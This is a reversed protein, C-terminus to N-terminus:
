LLAEARGPTAYLVGGGYFAVIKEEEQMTVSDPNKLAPVLAFQSAM